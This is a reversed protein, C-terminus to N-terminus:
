KKDNGFLFLPAHGPLGRSFADGEEDEDEDDDYDSRKNGGIEYVVSPSLDNNRDEFNMDQMQRVDDRQRPREEEMSMKLGLLNKIVNQGILKQKGGLRLGTNFEDNYGDDDDDNDVVDDDYNEDNNDGNAIENRYGLETEFPSNEFKRENQTYDMVAMKGRTRKALRQLMQFVPDTGESMPASDEIAIIYDKRSRNKTAIEDKITLHNYGSGSAEETTVNEVKNEQNRKSGATFLYYKDDIHLAIISLM